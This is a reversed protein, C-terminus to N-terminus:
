LDPCLLECSVPREVFSLPCDGTLANLCGLWGRDNRFWRSISVIVRGRNYGVAANELMVSNRLELGNTLTRFAITSAHSELVSQDAPLEFPPNECM